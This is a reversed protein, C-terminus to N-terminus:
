LRFCNQKCSITFNRLVFGYYRLLSMNRLRVKRRRRNSIISLFVFFNALLVWATLAIAGAVEGVNLGGEGDNAEGEPQEPSGASPGDDAM